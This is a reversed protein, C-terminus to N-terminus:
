KGLNAYTQQIEDILCKYIDQYKNNIKKISDQSNFKKRFDLWFSNKALEKAEDIRELLDFMAYMKLHYIWEYKLEWDGFNGEYKKYIEELKDVYYTRKLGENREVAFNLLELAGQRSNETNLIIIYIEIARTSKYYKCLLKLLQKGSETNYVEDNIIKKISKM